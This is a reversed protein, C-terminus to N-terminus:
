AGAAGFELALSSSRLAISLFTLSMTASAASKAWFSGSGSADSSQVSTYERLPPFQGHRSINQHRRQGRGHFLARQALHSTFSPSLDRGAVHDGFDFGVLRRHFDFGDVFAGDALDQHGLAGLAHLDVGDDGHQQFFAFSAEVDAAL